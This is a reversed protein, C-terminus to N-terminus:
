RTILAREFFQKKVIFALMLFSFHQKLHIDLFASIIEHVVKAEAQPLVTL